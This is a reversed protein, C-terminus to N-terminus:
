EHVQEVGLALSLPLNVDVPHTIPDVYSKLAEEMSSARQYPLMYIM